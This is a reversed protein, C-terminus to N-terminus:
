TSPVPRWSYRALRGSTEVQLAGGMELEILARHISKHTVNEMRAAIEAVSLPRASATLLDRVDHAIRSAKRQQVQRRQEELRQMGFIRTRVGWRAQGEPGPMDEFAFVFPEPLEGRSRAKRPAACVDEGDRKRLIICADLADFIASSGRLMEQENVPDDVGSKRTHHIVNARCRTEASCENLFDLADRVESSNEDRGSTACKLSDILILDRGGMLDIWRRRQAPLLRLGAPEVCLKFRDQLEPDELDIGRAYALRRYRLKILEEGQQELDIHIVRRPRDVDHVGWVPRGAALSLLLEQCLLTKGSFGPGAVMHTAGAGEVFAIPEVLYAMPARQTLLDAASLLKLAAQEQPQAIHTDLAARFRMVEADLTGNAHAITAAGMAVLARLQRKRWKDRVTEAHGKAHRLMRAPDGPMAPAVTLLNALYGLGGVQALRDHERLWSGVAVIDVPKGQEAVAVAAAYILQHAEAYFHSSSVVERVVELAGEALLVASLTAAEANLDAEVDTQHAATV